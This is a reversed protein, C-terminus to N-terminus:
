RRNRADYLFQQPADYVDFLRDIRTLRLIDKMDKGPVILAVTASNRRAEARFKILAALDESSCHRVQSFDLGYTQTAPGIYSKIDNWFDEQVPSSREQVDILAVGDIGSDKREAWLTQVMSSLSKVIIYPKNDSKYLM